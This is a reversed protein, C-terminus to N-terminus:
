ALGIGQNARNVTFYGQAYSTTTPQAQSAVVELFDLEGNTTTTSAFYWSNGVASSANYRGLQFSTGLQDNVDGLTTGTASAAAGDAGGIFQLMLKVSGDLQVVELNTKSDQATDVGSANTTISDVAYYYVTLSGAHTQLGAAPLAIAQALQGSTLVLIDGYKITQSAAVPLWQTPYSMSGNNALGITAGLTGFAPAIQGM